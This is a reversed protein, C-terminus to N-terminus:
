FIIGPWCNKNTAYFGFPVNNWWTVGAMANRNRTMLYGDFRQDDSENAPTNNFDVWFVIRHQLSSSTGLFGPGQQGVISDQPNAMIQYRLNYTNTVNPTVVSLTGTGGYTANAPGLFLSGPIGDWVMDYNAGYQCVYDGVSIPPPPVVITGGGIVGVSGRLTQANAPPSFWGLTLTILTLAATFIFRSTRTAM